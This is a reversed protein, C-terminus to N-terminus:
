VLTIFVRLYVTLLWFTLLWLMLLWFQSTKQVQESLIYNHACARETVNTVNTVNLSASLWEVLTPPTVPLSVADLGLGPVRDRDFAPLMIEDCRM